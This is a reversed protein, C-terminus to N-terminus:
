EHHDEANGSQRYAVSLQRRKREMSLGGVVLILGGIMFFISRPMLDWFFDFYRVLVFISLSSMGINVLKIDERWHGIILLALVISAFAMNFLVTYVSTASPFYFFLGTLSLLAGGIAGEWRHNTDSRTSWLSNLAVAIIAAILILAFSMSFQATVKALSDSVSFFHSWEGSFVKFTLLFLAGMAAKISILRVVRACGQWEERWAHMGGFAFVMVASVLYLAPLAVFNHQSANVTFGRFVFLGIWVYFLITSLGAIAKNQFCYVLPLIGLIWTLVLWHSNANVHYIQAILFVTVGFLLSGLFLLANGVLPYDKREYRLSYGGYYVAGTVGLMLIVKTVSSFATWNSAMFLFAGIGLLLAGITSFVTILKRSSNERHFERADGRMRDAQPASVVGQAQWQDILRDISRAM